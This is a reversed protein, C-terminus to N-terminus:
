LWCWLELSIRLKGIARPCHQIYENLLSQFSCPLWYRDADDIEKRNLAANFLSHAEALFADPASYHHDPNSLHALSMRYHVIKDIIKVNFSNQLM